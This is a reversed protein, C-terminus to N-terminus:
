ILSLVRNSLSTRNNVKCKEYISRLHNQVTRVSIFLEEAVETNTKGEIVCQTIEIERKTLGFEECVRPNLVGFEDSNFFALFLQQEDGGENVRVYGEIKPERVELSFNVSSMTTLAKGQALLERCASVIQEPLTRMETNFESRNAFATRAYDNAFVLALNSDLILLGKNMMGFSLTDLARKYLSLEDSIYVRDAAASLFPGLVNARKIEEKSFPKSDRDRHLGLFAFPKDGRMIVVILMHYINQPKLFYLYFESTAFQKMDVLQDSSFAYGEGDISRRLAAMPFPDMKSYRDRFKDLYQPKINIYIPDYYVSQDGDGAYYHMVATKASFLDCIAPLIDNEFATKSRCNALGSLVSM